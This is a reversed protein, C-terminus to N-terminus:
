IISAETKGVKGGNEQRDIEISLSRTNTLTTHIYWYMIFLKELFWKRKAKCLILVLFFRTDLSVPIM